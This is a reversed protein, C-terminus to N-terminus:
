KSGGGGGGSNHVLYLKDGFGVVYFTHSAEVQLNFVELEGNKIILSDIIEMGQDTQIRDGKKLHIVKEWGNTTLFREYATAKIAHNILYYHNNNDKYTDLVRRPINTQTGIDFTMVMDGVKIQNIPKLKGKNTQIFTEAPFCSNTSQNFIAAEKSSLEDIKSKRRTNDAWLADIKAIQKDAKADDEEIGLKETLITVMTRNRRIVRKEEDIQHQIIRVRKLDSESLGELAAKDLKAKEKIYGEINLASDSEMGLAGCGSLFVL